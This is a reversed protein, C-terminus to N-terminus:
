TRLINDKLPKIINSIDKKISTELNFPSLVGPSTEGRKKSFDIIVSTEDPKRKFFAFSRSNAISPNVLKNLKVKLASMVREYGTSTKEIKPNTVVDVTYLDANITYYSGFRLIDGPEFNFYTEIPSYYGQIDNSVSSTPSMFTTGKYYLYSASDNFVLTQNDNYITFFSSETSDGPISGSILPIIASNITDYVEFFSNSADGSGIEFYIGESRIFFNRMEAFYFKLRLKDGQALTINYDNLICSVQIYGSSLNTTDDVFVASNDEDVGITPYYPYIGPPISNIRLKTSNKYTWSTGGSSQQELVAIVKFTSWGADPNKEYRIKIPININVAYVSNRLAQFYQYYQGGSKNTYMSGESDNTVYGGVESGSQNPTFWDLTYYNSNYEIAPAPDYFYQGDSKKYPGRTNLPIASYPWLTSALKNFSFVNGSQEVGNVKFFVNSGNSPTNLNADANGVTQFVFSATNVSKIGLKSAVTQMPNTYLFDLKENLERYVIPAYRFGGEFILKSGELNSQNTPSYKDTLFIDATTGKKYMNQVEFLNYNRSSLETLSGTQDILYKISVTTKDYFNLNKEYINNIWAFKKTNIDIAATKGYSSDGNTYFTYIASSAKCGLYRPRIYAQDSYNSDQVQTNELINTNYPNIRKFINSDVSSSVNNILTNYDSRIFKQYDITM